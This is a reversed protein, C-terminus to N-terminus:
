PLAEKRTGADINAPRTAAEQGRLHARWRETAQIRDPEPSRYDYGLRTGTLRELALIAYLRVAEDDDELRDVLAPIASRDRTDAAQKVARAREEPRASFLADPYPTDPPGCGPALMAAVLLVRGVRTSAGSIVPEKWEGVPRGLRGASFHPEIIIAAHKINVQWQGM